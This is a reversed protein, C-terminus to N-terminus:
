PRSKVVPKKVTQKAAPVPLEFSFPIATTTMGNGFVTGRIGPTDCYFIAKNNRVVLEWTGDTLALSLISKGGMRVGTFGEARGFTIIPAAGWKTLHFRGPQGPQGEELTQGTNEARSVMKIIYDRSSSLPRGDLSVVMLAGIGTSTTLTLPGLSIPKNLPLEGCISVTKPSIVTLTGNLLNRLIQGNSAAMLGTELMTHNVPAGALHFQDLVLPLVTSDGPWVTVDPLRRVLPIKKKKVMGARSAFKRANGPTQPAPSLTAKAAPAPTNLSSNLKVFWSLRYLNTLSNPWRFLTEPTHLLTATYASPSIDGRLFAQAGLAYLGWVPPDAQHDFDSLRDPDKTIQYGFLLVADFDQLSCYAAMEPIAIARYRNPWVTAWERVVVPKNDWRLAGLWPAVQYPSSNRLPNTDNYFFTGEWEKGAFSPHDAYYNESTFDLEAAASAVDPVYENSVVGTIPIKLGIERLYAKMERFYGRQTEYLFRVGDRLRTPARRVDVVLAAPDNGPPAAPTFLPLKVSYSGTDEGDGLIDVEGMRGWALKIGDRTGYQQLLWRNWQQRLELGYPEVLTDLNNAKFFLGHENCIELLALGPDDVYRLGTLPNVHTLLQRAFEKQLDILRRDFFAYPKAARGIQDYGPVDDGSKFQRFDLLDFYYYMGRERVKAVWYDLIQLKRADIIRTTDSGENDLLGGTSDLAEFRVMNTGARALVDVVKDIEDKGTFVSHNSINIGWFKARSGNPWSFKGQKDVRLFGFKGAPKDLLFRFDVLSSDPFLGTNPNTRGISQAQASPHLTILFLSAALAICGRLWASVPLKTAM